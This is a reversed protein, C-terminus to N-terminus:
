KTKTELGVKIGVKVGVKVGLKPGLKSNPSAVYEDTVLRFGLLKTLDIKVNSM